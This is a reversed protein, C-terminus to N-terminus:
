LIIEPFSRFAHRIALSKFLKESRVIVKKEKIYSTTAHFVSERGAMKFEHLSSVNKLVLGSGVETFKIVTKYGRIRMEGFVPGSSIVHEIYM